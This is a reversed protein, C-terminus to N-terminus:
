TMPRVRSQSTGSPADAGIAGIEGIRDVIQQPQQRQFRLPMARDDDALVEAGNAVAEALSQLCGAQVAHAHQPELAFPLTRRAQDRHSRSAM